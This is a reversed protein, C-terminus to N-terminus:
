DNTLKQEVYERTIKTGDLNITKETSKPLELKESLRDFHSHSMDGLLRTAQESTNQTARSRALESPTQVWIILTLAGHKNAIDRLKQRDSFHNFATDFVVSKGQGLLIATESNLQEYLSLNEAQNYVPKNFKQKRHNDAWLHVAGTIEAIIQAVTTKGAGPLGVMLYLTPQNM